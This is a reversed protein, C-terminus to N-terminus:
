GTSQACATAQLQCCGRRLDASPLLIVTSIIEPDIEVFTHSWISSVVGPAATPSAVLQAICGELATSCVILYGALMTHM